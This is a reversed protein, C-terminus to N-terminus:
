PGGCVTTAPVGSRGGEEHEELINKLVNFGNLKKKKKTKSIKMYTWM